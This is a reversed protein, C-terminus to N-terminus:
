IDGTSQRQVMEVKWIEQLEEVPRGDFIEVLMGVLREGAKSAQPCMVSLPPNNTKAIELDDYCILSIDNPTKLNLQQLAQLIGAATQTFFLIATPPNKLKMLELTHQYSSLKPDNYRWDRVLDPDYSLGGSELGNIYGQKCFVPFMYDSERNILAIRKHGLDILYKCSERFALEGDMDLYAHPRHDETRGYLVFPINKELLYSIRDDRTKTMTLIIGDVRKGQVMRHLSNIEQRSDPAVAINLDYGIKGLSLSIGVLLDLFFTDKFYDQEASLVIGITETKGKQLRQAVPNPIYNYKKAIERVRIRTKASVDPYEALARSVTTTSLELIKALDRLDISM